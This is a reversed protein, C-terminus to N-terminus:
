YASLLRLHLKFESKVDPIRLSSNASEPMDPLEFNRKPFPPKSILLRGRPEPQPTYCSDAM